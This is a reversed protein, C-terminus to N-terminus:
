PYNVLHAFMSNAKCDRTGVAAAVVVVVVVVCCLVNGISNIIYQVAAHWDTFRRRRRCSAGDCM